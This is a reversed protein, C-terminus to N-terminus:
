HILWYYNYYDIDQPTGLWTGRKDEPRGYATSSRNIDEIWLSMWLM